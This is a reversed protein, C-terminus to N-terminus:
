INVKKETSDPTKEKKLEWLHFCNQHLSCFEDSPPFSMYMDITPMFEYKAAKIEDWIPYRSQHSISLHWGIGQDNSIIVKFPGYKWYEFGQADRRIFEKKIKKM